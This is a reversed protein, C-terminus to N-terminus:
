NKLYDDLKKIKSDSTDPRIILIFKLSNINQNDDYYPLYTRWTKIGDDRVHQWANPLYAIIDNRNAIIGKKGLSTEVFGDTNKKLNSFGYGLIDSAKKVKEIDDIERFDPRYYNRTNLTSNNMSSYTTNKKEILYDQKSSLRRSTYNKGNYLFPTEPNVFDLYEDVCKKNCLFIPKEDNIFNPLTPYGFFRPILGNCTISTDLSKSPKESIIGVYKTLKLRKSAQYKNKILIFTHVIPEEYTIIIKKNNQRAQKEDSNNEHSIYFNNDCDDEIFIWNNQNCIEKLNSRYDGKEQQTRARVFHYRPSSYNQRIYKELNLNEGYNKIMERQNYFDFGKYGPGNKLIVLKHNNERSFISLNVDPTASVLIIKINYEKMREETLGLRTFEKDFTMKVDDAFHSEDIIFIHNSMKKLNNALHTIRKNFNSRHVICFTENRENLEEWLFRNDRLRFNNLTQEYWDTDSMGTTLTINEQPVLLLIFTMIDYILKHIVATKGSGPEACLSIWQVDKNQIGLLIEHAAIKSEDFWLIKGNKDPKNHLKEKSLIIDKYENHDDNNDINNVYPPWKVEFNINYEENNEDNNAMQSKAPCNKNRASHKEFDNRTKFGFEKYLEYNLEISNPLFTERCLRCTQYKKISKM